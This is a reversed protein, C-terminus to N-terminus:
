VLAANFVNVLDTDPNGLTASMASQARGNTFYLNTSGEPVNDTTGPSAVIAVYASGGWRFEKNDNLTVYLVGAVGTAPLAAVNAAEIVDDVYSPLYASSIKTTGDLPVIGNAQGITAADVPTFGLADQKGAALARVENTAAVLNTKATTTLASLDALNGNVLTKVEKIKGGIAAALNELRVQLTAM